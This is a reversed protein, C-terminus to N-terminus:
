LVITKIPVDSLAFVLLHVIEGKHFHQTAGGNLECIETGRKGALFYTMIRGKGYKSNVFVQEHEVVGLRDMIDEDLTLSGDCEVKCDSIPIQQVKAKLYISQM